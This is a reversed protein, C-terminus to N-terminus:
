LRKNYDRSKRFSSFGVVHVSSFPAKSFMSLKLPLYLCFHNKKVGSYEVPSICCDISIESVFSVNFDTKTCCFVCDTDVSLPTPTNHTSSTM